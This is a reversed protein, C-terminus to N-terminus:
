EDFHFIHLTSTNIRAEGEVEVMSDGSAVCMTENMEVRWIVNVDPLLEKCKGTELSWLRLSSDSGTLMRYEDAALASVSGTNLSFKGLLAGTQRNWHRVTGDTSGTALYHATILCTSVLNVHGRLEFVCLGSHVNWVRVTGTHGGSVILTGDFAVSYIKDSHGVLHHVCCRQKLDWVRLTGDYSGTVALTGQVALCRVSESHHQDFSKLLSGTQVDWLKVTRDRSGSICTKGDASLGLCRVTSRHGILTQLLKRQKISWIRITRDTSGTILCDGQYHLAWVGGTHGSFSHQILGNKPNVALVHGTDTGLVILEYDFQITTIVGVDRCIVNILRYKADNWNSKIRLHRQLLSRHPLPHPFPLSCHSTHNNHNTYHSNHKSYSATSISSQNTNAASASSACELTCRCQATKARLFQYRWVFDSGLALQNWQRCCLMVEVLARADLFSLILVAVDLPLCSLFNVTMLGDLKRFLLHIQELTLHKVLQSIFINQHLPLLSQFSALLHFIDQQYHSNSSSAFFQGPDEEGESSQSSKRKNTPRKDTSTSPPSPSNIMKRCCPPIPLNLTSQSHSHSHSHSRPLSFSPFSM